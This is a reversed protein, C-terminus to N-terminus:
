TSYSRWARKRRLLPWFMLVGAAVLGFTRPEPILIGGTVGDPTVTVEVAFFDHESGPADAGPLDQEDSYNLEFATFFTGTTSADVDVQFPVGNLPDDSAVEDDFPQLTITIEPDGFATISDLDMEATPAMPDNIMNPAYAAFTEGGGTAGFALPDVSPEAAQPIQSSLAVVNGGLVFAPKAHDMVVISGSRTLSGGTGTDTATVSVTYTGASTLASNFAFPLAIYGTGDDADKTGSYASPVGYPFTAYVSFNVPDSGSAATNYIYATVPDQYGQLVTAYQIQSLVALQGPDAYAAVSISLSLALLNIFGVRNM